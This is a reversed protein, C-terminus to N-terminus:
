GDKMTIKHSQGHVQPGIIMRIHVLDKKSVDKVQHVLDKKSVDKVQNRCM